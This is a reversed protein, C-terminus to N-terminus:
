GSQTPCRDQDLCFKTTLSQLFIQAAQPFTAATLAAGNTVEAIARREAADATSGYTILTIPVPRLPDFEDQLTAILAKHSIGSNDDNPGDTLVIVSTLMGDIQQKSATRFAALVSDYLGAKGRTRDPLERLEKLALPTNQRLPGLPVLEQHDKAGDLGTSFVWLGLDSGEPLGRIGQAVLDATAEMRTKGLGPVPTDMSKGVDLLLLTRTDALLLRMTLLSRLLTRPDPSPIDAPPAPRLGHRADLSPGAKADPTRFGAGHLLTRGASSVIADRFAAAAEQTAPDATLPVYPYDLSIAGETPYLGIVPRDPRLSNYSWISQESAVIVPDGASPPHELLGFLAEDSTRISRKLNMTIGRVIPSLEPRREALTNLSNVAALGAAFRNPALLTTSAKPLKKKTASTPILLAWSPGGDKAALRGATEKTVAPIVPSRAISVSQRPLLKDAGQLRAMSVWISADPIWVDTLKSRVGLEDAVESAQRTGITVDACGGDAEFQQAIRELTPAIDPSSMVRLRPRETCLTQAVVVYVGVALVLVLAAGMALAAILRRRATAAVDM